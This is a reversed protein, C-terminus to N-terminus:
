KKTKNKQEINSLLDEKIFIFEEFQKKGHQKLRYYQVLAGIIGLITSYVTKFQESVEFPIFIVYCVVSIFIGFAWADTNPYIKNEKKWEDQRHYLEDRLNYKLIKEFLEKHKIELDYM